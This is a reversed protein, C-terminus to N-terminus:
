PSGGSHTLFTLIADAVGEPDALFLHHPAGELVRVDAGPLAREMRRIQEEEWWGYVEFARVALRRTEPPAAEDAFPFLDEPRAPLAFLALVPTRVGEFAPPRLGALIRGSWAAEAESPALGGGPAGGLGAEVEHRPFAVGRVREMYRSWGDVSAPDEDAGMPPAEPYPASAALSPLGTRDHAADLYVLAAVREPAAVALATMEDGAFSHGAVAAREVGLTDLVALLDAVLADMDVAGDGGTSAGFGRRTPALVRHTGTLRPALDDYVHATNGLGALLLLPPGDGGWDLVELTVDPATRVTRVSHDTPPAHGAHQGAAPTPAPGAALVAALGAGIWRLTSRVPLDPM